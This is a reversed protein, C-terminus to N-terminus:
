IGLTQGFGQGFHGGKGIRLSYICVSLHEETTNVSGVNQKKGSYHHNM